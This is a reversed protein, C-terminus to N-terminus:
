RGNKRLHKRGVTFMFGHQDINNEMEKKERKEHQSLNQYDFACTAPPFWVPALIDGWEASWRQASGLVSPNM